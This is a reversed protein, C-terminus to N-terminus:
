ERVVGVFSIPIAQVRYAAAVLLRYDNRKTDLVVRNRGAFRVSTYHNRINRPATWM